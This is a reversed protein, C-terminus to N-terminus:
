KKRKFVPVFSCAEGFMLNKVFPHLKKTIEIYISEPIEVNSCGKVLVSQGKFKKGDIKNIENIFLTEEVFKEKGFYVTSNELELASVILMYAWMPIITEASCSLAVIRNKYFEFDFENLKQKFFAEKLILDQYLFDKIDLPFIKISPRYESLDITKLKSKAVRNVIENSM